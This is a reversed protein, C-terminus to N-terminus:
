ISPSKRNKDPNCNFINNVIITIQRPAAKTVEKNLFCYQIFSCIPEFNFIEINKKKTQNAQHIM